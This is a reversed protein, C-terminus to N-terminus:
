ISTTERINSQLSYIGIIHVYMYTYINILYYFNHLYGFFFDVYNVLIPLYLHPFLSPFTSHILKMMALLISDVM